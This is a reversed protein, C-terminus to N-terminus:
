VSRLKRADLIQKTTYLAKLDPVQNYYDFMCLWCEIHPADGDKLMQQLECKKYECFEYKGNKFTATQM